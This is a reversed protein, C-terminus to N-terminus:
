IVLRFYYIEDEVVKSSFSFRKLGKFKKVQKESEFYRSECLLVDEEPIETPRCSLFDKFSSVMCKGPPYICLVFTTQLHSQQHIVKNSNESEAYPNSPMYFFVHKASILPSFM